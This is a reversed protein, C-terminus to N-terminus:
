GAEYVRAEQRQSVDALGFEDHLARVARAVDAESVLCSINAHSDTTQLVRAAARHMARLVRAMVGPVGHMGAGVVSVKALGETVEFPVGLNRLVNEARRRNGQDVIFAVAEPSVYIMDASVGAKGLEAFVERATEDGDQQGGNPLRFQVRGPVHAIGTVVRDVGRGLGEGFGDCVLTGPGSGVTSRIRLPVRGEMAIEVARPHVVKAGLHAMEVIERYSLRELRVADPVLRPDATYVGEVDKFIEVAEARLAVGLAAATTDSGGRGLTTVQGDVTVGQFGAVVAVRGERLHRLLRETEVRLIRANGFNDDTIIGADRGTLAVAPCGQARLAHALVVCSIVEGCSLLLDRDRPDAETGNDLLQLLTDTAYPDGARGMASVVAVVRCGAERAELIRQVVQRRLEATVVSTGGFKQVLIRM